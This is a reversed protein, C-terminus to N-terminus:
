LDDLQILGIPITPNIKIVEFLFRQSSLSSATEMNVNM